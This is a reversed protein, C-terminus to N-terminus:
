PVEGLSAAFEAISAHRDAADPSLGRLIADNLRMLCAPEMSSAAMPSCVTLAAPREENVFRRYQELSRGGRPHPPAGTLLEYAIACLAYQDCAFTAGGGGLRQPSAYQPTCVRDAPDIAGSIRTAQRPPALVRAVGFDILHVERIANAGAPPSVLINQPKLDGHAIGCAHTREVISAIRRILRQAELPDHAPVRRGAPILESGTVRSM